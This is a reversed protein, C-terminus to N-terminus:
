NGKASTLMKRIFKKIYLCPKQEILQYYKMNNNITPLQIQNEYLIQQRTIKTPELDLKNKLIDKFVRWDTHFLTFYQIIAVYKTYYFFFCSNEPILRFLKLM